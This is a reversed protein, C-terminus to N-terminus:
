FKKELPHPKRAVDIQATAPFSREAM